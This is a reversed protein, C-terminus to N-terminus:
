VRYATPMAKPIPGYQNTHNQSPILTCVFLALPGIFPVIAGLIWWGSLGIDHLRRILVTATAPLFVLGLILVVYFWGGLAEVLAMPNSEFYGPGYTDYLQVLEGMVTFMLAVYLAMWILCYFLVFSWYEKRRARGEGNFSNAMVKKFYDWLGLEEGSYVTAGAPSPAAFASGFGGSAPESAATAPPSAHDMLYIETAAAESPIFDVRNGARIPRLQQLEARRFTYRNGDDGSIFGTGANDDYQLVTGRM